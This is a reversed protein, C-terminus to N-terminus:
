KGSATTLLFITEEIAIVSHPINAHLTVIQQEDIEVSQQETIFKIKGEIVQVSITGQAIHTKMETGAHLGVVVITMNSSKFVTISNRDSKSWPEESRIQKIYHQLDITLSPADLVRDGQPRQPTAENRKEEM